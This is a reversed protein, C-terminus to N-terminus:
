RAPVDPLRFGAVRRGIEARLKQAQERDRRFYDFADPWGEFRIYRKDYHFMNKEPGIIAVRKYYARAYGLEVERGGREDVDFVDLLFWVSRRIDEFDRDIRHQRSVQTTGTGLADTKEEHLWGTHSILGLSVLQAEIERLRQNQPWPGALYFSDPVANVAPNSEPVRVSSLRVGSDDRHERCQARHHVSGGDDGPIGDQLERLTGIFARKLEDRLAQLRLARRYHGELESYGGEAAPRQPGAKCCNVINTEKQAADSM